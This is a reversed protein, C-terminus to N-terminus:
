DQPIDLRHHPNAGAIRAEKRRPRGSSSVTQQLGARDSIRAATIQFPFFQLRRRPLTTSSGRKDTASSLTIPNSRRRSRSGLPVAIASPERSQCSSQSGLCPIRVSPNKLRDPCPSLDQSSSWRCKRDNVAGPLRLPPPMQKLSRFFCETRQRLWSM